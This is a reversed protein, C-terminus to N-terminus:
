VAGWIYHSSFKRRTKDMTNKSTAGVAELKNRKQEGGRRKGIEMTGRISVFNTKVVLLQLSQMMFKRNQQTLVKLSQAVTNLASSVTQHQFCNWDHPVLRKVSQM